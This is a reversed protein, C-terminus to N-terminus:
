RSNGAEAAGRPQQRPRTAGVVPRPDSSVFLMISLGWALYHMPAKFVLIPNKPYIKLRIKALFGLILIPLERLGRNGENPTETHDLSLPTESQHYVRLLKPFEPHNTAPPLKTFNTCAGSCVTALPKPAAVSRYTLATARM